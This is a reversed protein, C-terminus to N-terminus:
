MDFCCCNERHCPLLFNPGNRTRPGQDRKTRLKKGQVMTWPGHDWSFKSPGHGLPWPGLFIKSSWPGLAMTGPFNQLAMTRPGHDEFFRPPGPGQEFCTFNNRLIKFCHHKPTYISLYSMDVHYRLFWTILKTIPIWLLLQKPLLFGFM